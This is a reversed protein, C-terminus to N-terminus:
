EYENIIFSYKRINKKESIENEVKMLSFLIHAMQKLIKEKEETFVYSKKSDICLVGYKEPLPIAILSKIDEDLEYFKLTTADRKDFYTALVSKQERYVWGIIGEGSMVKCNKKINKGLSYFSHLFLTDGERDGALFLTTTYTEMINSILEIFEIIRANTKLM